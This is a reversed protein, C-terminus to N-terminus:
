LYNITYTCIASVLGKRRRRKAFRPILNNIPLVKFMRRVRRMSKGEGKRGEKGEERRM